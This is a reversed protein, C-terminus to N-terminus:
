YRMLNFKKKGFRVSRSKYGLTGLRRRFDKSDLADFNLGLHIEFSGKYEARIVVEKGLADFFNLVLEM